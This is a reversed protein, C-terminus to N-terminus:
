EMWQGSICSVRCASAKIFLFVFEELHVFNAWAFESAKYFLGTWSSQNAGMLLPGGIMSSTWGLVIYREAVAELATDVDIATDCPATVRSPHPFGVQTCSFYSMMAMRSIWHFRRFYSRARSTMIGLLMKCLIASETIKLHHYWVECWFMAAAKTTVFYIARYLIARTLSFCIFKQM